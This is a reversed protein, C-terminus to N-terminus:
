GSLQRERLYLSWGGVLLVSIVTAIVLRSGQFGGDLVVSGLAAGGFSGGIGVVIASIWVPKRRGPVALGGLGGIALGLATLILLELFLM